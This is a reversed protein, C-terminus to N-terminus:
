VDICFIFLVDNMAGSILLRINTDCLLSISGSIDPLKHEYTVMVVRPSRRNHSFFIESLVEKGMKGRTIETM